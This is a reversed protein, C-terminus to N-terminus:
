KVSEAMKILEERSVDGHTRIGVSVNDASEFDINREDMIVASIGNIDVKEINSDTGIAFATEENILREFCVIENGGDDAYVLNMYYGSINGEEDTYGYAKTFGYGEPLYTPEKIDFDCVAQAEDVSLYSKELGDGDNEELTIGPIDGFMEKLQEMSIHNGDSDYLHDLRDKSLSTLANGNEDFLKGKLEEPLDYLENPDTQYFFVHGTSFAKLVGDFCGEAAAVGTVTVIVAACAFVFALRKGRKKKISETMKIVEKESLEWAEYCSFDMKVDNLYNYENKM